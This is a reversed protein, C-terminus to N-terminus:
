ARGLCVLCMDDDQAGGELFRQVDEVITEGLRAPSKGAFGAVIERLRDIGYMEGEAGLCENLGDTYLVMMDGPALSTRTEEYAIGDTIGLPLGSVGGGPEEVKGGRRRVLPAMHGANAISVEGSSPDLVVLVMTIFRDLGMTSLADNLKSMAVDAREETALFFRAEASLKAMLLAAAIGHGVVDAV